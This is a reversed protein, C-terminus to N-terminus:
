TKCEEDGSRPMLSAFQELSLAEKLSAYLRLIAKFLDRREQCTNRKRNYSLTPGERAGAFCQDCINACWCQLCDKESIARYDEIMNSVLQADVWTTVDGLSYCRGVKECAYMRGTTDVFCKRVGPICCGNAEVFQNSNESQCKHVGALNQWLLATEFTHDGIKNAIAADYYLRLSDRYMQSCDRVFQAQNVEFPLAQDNIQLFSLTLDHNRVMENNNFFDKIAQYNLPPCLVCVFGISEYYNPCYERLEHLNGMIQDFTPAGDQGRRYRDHIGRPGDLSIRLYVDQSVLFSLRDGTVHRGNSTMSFTLGSDGAISRAFNVIEEVVEFAGDMLPEGGYFAINPRSTMTSQALFKRVATKALEVNMIKPAHTREYQYHGSYICYTCRNSCNETVNLQLSMQHNKVKEMIEHIAPTRMGSFIRGGRWPKMPKADAAISDVKGSISDYSYPSGSYTRFIANM